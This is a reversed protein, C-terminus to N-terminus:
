SGAVARAGISELQVLAEKQEPSLQGIIVDDDGRTDPVLIEILRLEANVAAALENAADIAIKLRRRERPDTTEDHVKQLVNIEDELGDAVNQFDTQRAGLSDLNLQGSALMARIDEATQFAATEAATALETLRNQTQLRAAADRVKQVAPVLLGILIAIIAIVVLLEILTFGLSKRRSFM